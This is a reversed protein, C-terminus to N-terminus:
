VGLESGVLAVVGCGGSSRIRFRAAEAITVELEFGAGGREVTLRFSRM